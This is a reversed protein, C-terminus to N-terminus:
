CGLSTGDRPDEDPEETRYVEDDTVLYYAEVEYDRHLDPEDDVSTETYFTSRVAVFDGDSRVESGEVVSEPSRPTDDTVHERIYRKECEVAREATTPGVMEEGTATSDSVDRDIDSPAAADDEGAVCGALAGLGIVALARRRKM